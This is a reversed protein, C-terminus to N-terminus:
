EINQQIYRAIKKYIGTLGNPMGMWQYKTDGFGPEYSSNLELIGADCLLKGLKNAEAETSKGGRQMLRIWETAVTGLDRVNEEKLLDRMKIM